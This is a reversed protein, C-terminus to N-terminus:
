CVIKIEQQGPQELCLTDVVIVSSMSFFAVLRAVSIFNNLM